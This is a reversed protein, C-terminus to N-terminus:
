ARLATNQRSIPHFIATVHLATNADIQDIIHTDFRPCSAEEATHLDFVRWQMNAEPSSSLGDKFGLPSFCRSFVIFVNPAVKIALKTDNSVYEICAIAPSNSQPNAKRGSPLYTSGDVSLSM